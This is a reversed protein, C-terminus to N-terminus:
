VTGGSFRDYITKVNGESLRKYHKRLLSNYIRVLPLSIKPIQSSILHITPSTNQFHEM